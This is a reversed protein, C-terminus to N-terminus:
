LALEAIVFKGLNCMEIMIKPERPKGNSNIGQKFRSLYQMNQLNIDLLYYKKLQVSHKMRKSYSMLNDKGCMANWYQTVVYNKESDKVTSHECIIYYVHNNPGQRNIQGLVTEWDNGQIGRSTETHAKLDGYVDLTPFYLDLDIGNQSKDQAYQIVNELCNEKLYKEFQFELYFGVWEAQNANKYGAAQMKNYCEIGNWTKEENEFFARIDKEVTELMLKSVYQQQGCSFERGVNASTAEMRLTPETSCRYDVTATDVELLDSLFTSVAKENFVTIRNNFWDVKQFFDDLTASRLDSVYVHASSNNATKFIFDEINFDCFLTNGEYTYIGLLIPTMDKQLARRYFEQLDDPIQIRKKYRPHPNGLYTVNKVRICFRRKEYEGCITGYEDKYIGPFYKKIREYLETRSLSTDYDYFINGTVDVQEVLTTGRQM